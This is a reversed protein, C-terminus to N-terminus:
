SDHRKEKKKKEKKWKAKLGYCFFFLDAVVATYFTIDFVAVVCNSSPECGICNHILAYSTIHTLGFGVSIQLANPPFRGRKQTIQHKKWWGLPVPRTDVWSHTLQPHASPDSCRHRGPTQVNRDAKPLPYQLLLKSNSSPFFGVRLLEILLTGFFM